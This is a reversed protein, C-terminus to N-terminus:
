DTPHAHDAHYTSRRSRGASQGGLNGASPHAGAGRCSHTRWRRPTVARSRPYDEFLWRAFNRRTRSTLGATGLALEAGMTSSLGRSLLGAFRHDTILERDVTQQYRATVRLPSGGALIAEAAWIGTGLARGIGEGTMHGAAATADGMLLVRGDTRGVIVVETGSM